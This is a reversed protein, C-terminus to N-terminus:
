GENFCRGGKVCCLRHRLSNLSRNPTFLTALPTSNSRVRGTPLRDIRYGPVSKDRAPANFESVPLQSMELARLEITKMM